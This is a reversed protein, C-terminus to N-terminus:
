PTAPRVAPSLVQIVGNLRGPGFVITAESPSYYRIAGASSPSLTRLIGVGGAPRDDFYVAVDSDGGEAPSRSSVTYQRQLWRPHLERVIDYLTSQRSDALQSASIITESPKPESEAGAGGGPPRCAGLLIPFLLTVALRTRQSIHRM